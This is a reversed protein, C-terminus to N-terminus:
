RSVNPWSRASLKTGQGDSLTSAGVIEVRHEFSHGEFSPRRVVVHELNSPVKEIKCSRERLSGVTCRSVTDSTLRPM